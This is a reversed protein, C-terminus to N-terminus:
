SSVYLILVFLFVPFYGNRGLLAAPDGTDQSLIQSIGFHGVEYEVMAEGFEQIWMAGVGYEVCNYLVLNLLKHPPMGGQQLANELM